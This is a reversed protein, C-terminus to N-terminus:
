NRRHKTPRIRPDYHGPEDVGVARSDDSPGGDHGTGRDEARPNVDHADRPSPQSREPRARAGPDDDADLADFLARAGSEDDAKLADLLARQRPRPLARLTEGFAHVKQAFTRDTTPM